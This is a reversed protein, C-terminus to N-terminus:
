FETYILNKCSRKPIHQELGFSLVIKEQESLIYSSYNDVMCKIFELNVNDKM